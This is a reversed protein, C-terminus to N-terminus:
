FTGIVQETMEVTSVLFWLERSLDGVSVRKQNLGLIM